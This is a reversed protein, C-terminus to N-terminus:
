ILGKAKAINIAQPISRGPTKKMIRKRYNSVTFFSIKLEDAINKSQYGNDILRLVQLERDSYINNTEFPEEVDIMTEETGVLITCKMLRDKSILTLDQWSSIEFLPNGKNDYSGINTIQLVWRQEGNDKKVPLYFKIVANTRKEEPLTSIWWLARSMGYFYRNRYFPEISLKLHTETILTHGSGGIFDFLAENYGFKMNQYDLIFAPQKTREFYQWPASAIEFLRESDIPEANMMQFFLHYMELQITFDPMKHKAKAM